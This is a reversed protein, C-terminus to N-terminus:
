EDADAQQEADSYRCHDPDHEGCPKQAAGVPSGSCSRCVRLRCRGAFLVISGPTPLAHPVVRAAPAATM